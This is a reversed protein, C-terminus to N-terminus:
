TKHLKLTFWFVTGANLESIVGIEGGMKTVLEKCIVLGVGTGEIESNEMGMREFPQFIKEKQEESLGPGHDRISIKLYNNELEEFSVHVASDKATYKISNNFLNLIVQKLRIKDALVKYDFDLKNDFEFFVNKKESIHKNLILCDDIVDKLDVTQMDLTIKESEIKAIDLSDNILNLLHRSAKLVEVVNDSKSCQMIEKDLSLLQTFGLIANLPTKFEHTMHVIFSTKASNARQADDRAVRFEETRERVRTELATNNKALQEELAKRETIDNLFLYFGNHKANPVLRAILYRRVGDPKSFYGEYETENGSLVNESFSLVKANMPATLVSSMDRESIDQGSFGFWEIFARNTYCIKYNKDIEAILTSIADTIVSLQKKQIELEKIKKDLKRALADAHKHEIESIEQSEITHSSAKNNSLIDKIIDLLKHPDTPKILFRDAGLSLALEKDKSDTYTATYFIFPIESLEKDSKIIKCLEFGDMIPMLIDSIILDPVSQSIVDLAQQGNEASDVDYGFYVLQDVLFIRADETDEVVLIRM